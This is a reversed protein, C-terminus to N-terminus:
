ARDRGAPISLATVAIFSVQWGKVKSGDSLRFFTIAGGTGCETGGEFWDWQRLRLCVLMLAVAWCGRLANPPEAVLERKLSYLVKVDLMIIGPTSLVCRKM